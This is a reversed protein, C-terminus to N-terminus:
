TQLLHIERLHSTREIQIRSFLVMHTFITILVQIPKEDLAYSTEGWAHLESALLHLIQIAMFIYNPNYMLPGTMHARASGKFNIGAGAHESTAVAPLDGSSHMRGSKVISQQIWTISYDIEM